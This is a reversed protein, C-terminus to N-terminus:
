LIEKQVVINNDKRKKERERIFVLNLFLHFALVFLPVKYKMWNLVFRFRTHHIEKGYM